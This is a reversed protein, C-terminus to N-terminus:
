DQKAVKSDAQAQQLATKETDDLESKKKDWKWVGFPGQKEFHVIDGDETAKMGAATTTAAPKAVAAAGTDERRSVGFPTQRYLWKKGQADTFHYDGDADQVAGKPITLSQAAQVKKPTPKQTQPDTACLALASVFIAFLLKMRIM